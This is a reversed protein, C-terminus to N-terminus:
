LVTKKVESKVNSIVVNKECKFVSPVAEGAESNFLNFPLVAFGVKKDAPGVALANDRLYAGIKRLPLRSASQKSRLLVDVGESVCRNQESDSARVSIQRVMALREPASLRPEVAFKPGLSLTEAVDTPLQVPELKHISCKDKKDQRQRPGIDHSRLRALDSAWIGGTTQHTVRVNFNGFNVEEQSLSSSRRPGSMQALRPERVSFQKLQLGLM